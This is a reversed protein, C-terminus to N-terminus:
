DATYTKQAAQGTSGIAKPKSGKVSVALSGDTSQVRLPPSVKLTKSQGFALDGTFVVSGGSDRVVVHAGGGAATLVVPVPAATKGYPNTTGSSGSDLSIQPAPSSPSGAMVVRAVSGILVVGMVAAVLVSWNPGGRMPRLGGGHGSALEAQFVARPDVPAQAYGADYEALLPAADVGLVRALTRLHGRAYFDGGCPAFDDVEISEIVHPRIRTRDALQDVSLGVRERAATLQPGIVPDEAPVIGSDVLDDFVVQTEADAAAIRVLRTAEPHAADADSLPALSASGVVEARVAVTPERLPSPTPSPRLVPVTPEAAETAAPEMPADVKPDVVAPREATDTLDSVDAADTEALTPDIEVVDVEAPALALLTDTLDEGAGTVTTGLGLPVAFPVGYMREALRGLRLAIGTLGDLQAANDVPLVTLRGDRWWGRAGAPRPQHEVEDIESWPLGRWTRGLRMRVGQDDVVALPVRADWALWAHALGLLLLLVGVLVSMGGRAAFGAGVVLAMAAIAGALRPNRRVEVM